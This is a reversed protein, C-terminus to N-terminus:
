QPHPGPDPFLMRGGDPFIRPTRLSFRGMTWTTTGLVLHLLALGADNRVDPSRLDHRLTPRLRQRETPTFTEVRPVQLLDLSVTIRRLLMLHHSVGMSAQRCTWSYPCRVCLAPIV